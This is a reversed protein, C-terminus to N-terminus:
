GTNREGAFAAIVANKSFDLTSSAPLGEVMSRILAYTEADRAIFVFPTEVKSYQGEILVKYNTPLPSLPPKPMPKVVNKTPVTKKSKTTKKKVQANAASSILVLSLIILALNKITQM